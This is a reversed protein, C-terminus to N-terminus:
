DPEEMWFADAAEDLEDHPSISVDHAECVYVNSSPCEMMACGSAFKRKVSCGSNEYQRVTQEVDDVQACSLSNRPTM